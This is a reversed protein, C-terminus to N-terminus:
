ELSVLALRMKSGDGRVETWGVVATTSDLVALQPYKGDESGPVQALRARREELDARTGIVTLEALEMAKPSLVMSLETVRGAEVRVVRRVPKVGIRKAVLVHKGMARSRRLWSIM